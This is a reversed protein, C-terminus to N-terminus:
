VKSRPIRLPRAKSAFRPMTTIAMRAVARNKSVSRSNTTRPIAKIAIPIPKRTVLRTTKLRFARAHFIPPEDNEHQDREGLERDWARENPFAFVSQPLAVKPFEPGGGDIWDIDEAATVNGKM